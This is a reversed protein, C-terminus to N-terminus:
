DFFMLSYTSLAEIGEEFHGNSNERRLHCHASESTLLAFAANTLKEFLDQFHPVKFYVAQCLVAASTV